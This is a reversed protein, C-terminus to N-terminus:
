TMLFDCGDMDDLFWLREHSRKHQIRGAFGSLRKERQQDHPRGDGEPRRERMRASGGGGDHGAGRDEEGEWVRAAAM